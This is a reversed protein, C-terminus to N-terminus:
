LLKTRVQLSVHVRPRSILWILYRRRKIIESDLHKLSIVANFPLAPPQNQLNGEPISSTCALTFERIWKKSRQSQQEQHMNTPRM